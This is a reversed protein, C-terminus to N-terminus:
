ESMTGVSAPAFCSSLSNMQTVLQIEADTCEERPIRNNLLLALRALDTNYGLLTSASDGLAQARGIVRQKCVSALLCYDSCNEVYSPTLDPLMDELPTDRGQRLERLRSLIARLRAVARRIEYIEADLREIVPPAPALGYPSSYIFIARNDTDGAMGVLGLESQLALIEVAGQLRARQRDSPASRGEEVINSKIEGCLYGWNTGEGLLLMFDPSIYRVEREDIPLQLQPQLILHPVVGGDRLERMIQRTADLNFQRAQVVDGGGPLPFRKVIMKAAPVGCLPSLIRRLEAADSAYLRREFRIGRQTASRQLGYDGAYQEGTVRAFFEREDLRDAVIAALWECTSRSLLILGRAGSLSM